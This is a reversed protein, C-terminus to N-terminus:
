RLLLFSTTSVQETFRGANRFEVFYSGSPLDRADIPIRLKGAPFIGQHLQRVERGLSNYLRLGGKMQQPLNLLLTVAGNTPSPYSAMSFQGPYSGPEDIVDQATIGYIIALRDLHWGDEEVSADSEIHFRLRLQEGELGLGTLDIYTTDWDAPPFQSFSVLPIWRGHPVDFAEVRGFDEGPEFYPIHILEIVAPFGRVLEVGTEIMLWPASNPAYSGTDSDTLCSRGAFNTISWSGAMGGQQWEQESDFNEEFIFQSQTLRITDIISEVIAKTEIRPVYGDSRCLIRHFGEPFDINGHGEIFYEASIEGMDSLLSARTSVLEGTSDDVFTFEVSHVPLRSLSVDVKVNVGDAIDCRDITFPRYGPYKMHLEYSGEVVLRDFRGNAPDCVLPALLRSPEPGLWIEAPLPEGSTSDHVLVTISGLGAPHVETLALDMLYYAADLNDTCIQNLVTSDPQIEAGVEIMYMQCGVAQYAWDQEQGVRMTARVPTYPNDINQRPILDALSTALAFIAGDGPPRKGEWSWPGIVLEANRGSRSGHYSIAYQFRRSQMLDRLCQTEPESFPAPGRYYNFADDLGNNFFLSDGRNWHLGFNRNLDVGSSDRGMGRLFRFEGDGINDRCNKRFTVDVNQHVIDFGDPNLTPIFFLELGEIRERFADDDRNAVILKMLELIIEVGIVEEAHVQGIMLVAPEADTNDPNDSIKVLWIPQQHTGGYGITDISIIDPASAQLELITARCESLDHYVPDLAPQAHLIGVTLSCLILPALRINNWLNFINL